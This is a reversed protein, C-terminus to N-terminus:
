KTKEHHPPLSILNVFLRYAGPVGAPLQRFFSLGTYVFNGKGYPAILLGGTLPTENPDKSSLIAQYKTDFTDAYYLGQEQIWQTFDEATILNPYRLAPHQPMLFTVKANEDTIRQTSIRLPYPGITDVFLPTNTQYQVIVNGGRKVFEFIQNQLHQEQIKTNYARIGIILVDFTNLKETSLNKEDLLEVAYGINKLSEWVRDGAGMIYGIRKPVIKLDVKKIEIKARELLIQTPIHDYTLQHVQQNFLKDKTQFEVVYTADQDAQISFSVIQELNEASFTLNQWETAKGTESVLRAKGTIHPLLSTFRVKCDLTENKSILYLPQLPAISIEPVILANDYMEGKVRDKYKYVWPILFTFDQNEISLDVSAVRDKQPMFQNEFSLERDVLWDSESYPYNLPITLQNTIFNSENNQLFRHVSIPPTNEIWRIKKVEVTADSRNILEMSFLQDSGQTMWQQSANVEMFLGACHYILDKTEALKKQKWYGNELKLIAQYISLLAPLNKQREEFNFHHILDDVLKEIPKGNKVRSWTIDIGEFLNQPDKLSPGKILEVYETQNGRTSLDGFGQSQHQSRSVSAIEQNSVGLTNYYKGTQLAIYPSKDAADFAEKSGFFYWSVNFFLRKPQWLSNKKLQNPFANRNASADFAAVSLQASATHHGHTIGEKRHDFRNIIIDPQVERITAVMEELIKNKDWKELAEQPRKSFGFDDATSFLQYGGDLKRANYLEQTRIIGLFDNLQESILNQGGNGRTLSLYYTEAKVENSLYSILQTNEDDPHAAVYLASALVNLKKVKEFLETSSYKSPKQAFVVFPLLFIWLFYLSTTKRKM